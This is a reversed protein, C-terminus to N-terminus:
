VPLAYRTYETLSSWKIKMTSEFLRVETITICEFLSYMNGEHIYLLSGNEIKTIDKGHEVQILRVDNLSLELAGTTDCGGGTVGTLSASKDLEIDYLIIKM